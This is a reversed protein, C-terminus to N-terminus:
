RWRFSSCGWAASAPAAEDCVANGPPMEFLGPMPWSMSRCDCRRGCDDQLVPGLDPRESTRAREHSSGPQNFEPSLWFKALFGQDQCDSRLATRPLVPGVRAHRRWLLVAQAPWGRLRRAQRGDRVRLPVVTPCDADLAAHPLPLILSTRGSVRHVSRSAAIFLDTSLFTSPARWIEGANSAPAAVHKADLSARVQPLRMPVLQQRSVCAGSCVVTRKSQFTRALLPPEVQKRRKGMRQQAPVIVLTRAPPRPNSRRRPLADGWQACSNRHFPRLDGRAIRLAAGHTLGAQCVWCPLWLCSVGRV